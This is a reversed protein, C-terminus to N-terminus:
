RDHRQEALSHDPTGLMTQLYSVSQTSGAEQLMLLKKPQNGGHNVPLFGHIFLKRGQDSEEPLDSNRVAQLQEFLRKPEHRDLISPEKEETPRYMQDVVAQAYGQLAELLVPNLKLASKYHLAAEAPQNGSLFMEAMTMHAHYYWPDLKLAMRCGQLAGEVRAQMPVVNKLLDSRLMMSNLNLLRPTTGYQCAATQVAQLKEPPALHHARLLLFSFVELHVLGPADRDKAIEALQTDDGRVKALHTEALLKQTRQTGPVHRFLRRKENMDSQALALGLAAEPDMPRLRVANEFDARAKTLNINLHYYGSARARAFESQDQLRGLCSPLDETLVTFDQSNLRFVGVDDYALAVDNGDFTILKVVTGVTVTRVPSGAEEMRLPVSLDRVVFARKGTDPGFEPAAIQGFATTVSNISLIALALRRVRQDYKMALEEKRAIASEPPRFGFSCHTVLISIAPVSEDHDTPSVATGVRLRFPQASLRM